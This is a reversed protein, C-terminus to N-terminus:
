GQSVEEDSEYVEPCLNYCIADAICAEQDVEVKVSM